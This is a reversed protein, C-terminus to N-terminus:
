RTQVRVAESAPPLDTKAGDTGSRLVPLAMSGFMYILGGGLGAAIAILRRQLVNDRDILFWFRMCFLIWLISVALVIIEGKM